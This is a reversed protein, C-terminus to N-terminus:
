RPHPLHALEAIDFDAAGETNLLCEVVAKGGGTPLNIPLCESGFTERIQEVLGELDVEPMDIKNVIIARCKNNGQRDGDDAPHRGRHREPRQHRRRGDRRRPPRRHGPRVPGASGPADISTSGSAPTTPTSSRRRLDLAQTGERGERLRQVLLRRRRGGQPQRHRVRLAACDVLTTKGSGGQGALLVNRIDATTYSPM